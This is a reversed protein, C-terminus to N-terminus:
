RRVLPEHLWFGHIGTQVSSSLETSGDTDRYKRQDDSGECCNARHLDAQLDPSWFDCGDGDVTRGASKLQGFSYFRGSQGRGILSLLLGCECFKATGETRCPCMSGRDIAGTCTIDPCNLPQMGHIPEPVGFFVRYSVACDVEGLPALFHLAEKGQESLGYVPRESSIGESSCVQAM